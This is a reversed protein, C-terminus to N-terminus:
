HFHSEDATYADAAGISSPTCHRGIDADPKATGDASDALFLPNGLFFSRLSTCKMPSVVAANLSADPVHRQQIDLPDSLPQSGCQRPEKFTYSREM